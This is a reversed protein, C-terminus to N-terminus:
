TLHGGRAKNDTQNKYLYVYEQDLFVPKSTSDFALHKSRMQLEWLGRVLSPPHAAKTLCFFFMTKSNALVIKIYLYTCHYHNPIFSTLTLKISGKKYQFCKFQKQKNSIKYPSHRFCQTILTLM